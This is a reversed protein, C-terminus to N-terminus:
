RSGIVPALAASMCGHGLSEGGVHRNGYRVSPGRADCGSQTRPATGTTLTMSSGAGLTPPTRAPRELSNFDIPTDGGSPAKPDHALRIGVPQCRHCSSHRGWEPAAIGQARKSMACRESEVAVFITHRRECPSSTVESMLVDVLSEWSQPWAITTRTPTAKTSVHLSRRLRRRNRQRRSPMGSKSSKSINTSGTSSSFGTASAPMAPSCKLPEAPFTASVDIHVRADAPQRFYDIGEIADVYYLHPIGLWAPPQGGVPSPRTIPFQAASALMVAVLRSTMEHDAM